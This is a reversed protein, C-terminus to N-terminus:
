CDNTLRLSCCEYLDFMLWQSGCESQRMIYADALEFTSDFFVSYPLVEVGEPIPEFAPLGKNERNQMHKTKTQLTDKRM